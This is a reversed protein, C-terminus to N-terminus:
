NKVMILQIYVFLTLIIFLNRYFKQMKYTIEQLLLNFFLNERM